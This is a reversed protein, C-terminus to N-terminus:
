SENWVRHSVMLHELVSYQRPKVTSTLRSRIWEGVRGPTEIYTKIWVLVNDPITSVEHVSLKLAKATAENIVKSQDDKLEVGAKIAGTAMISMAAMCVDSRAISNSIFRSNCSRTNGLLAGITHIYDHMSAHETISLNSKSVIGMSKYYPFSSGVNGIDTTILHM